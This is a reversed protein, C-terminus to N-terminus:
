LRILVIPWFAWISFEHELLNDNRTENEGRKEKGDGGRRILHEDGTLRRPRVQSQRFAGFLRLLFEVGALRRTRRLGLARFRVLSRGVDDAGLIGAISPLDPPRPPPRARTVVGVKADRERAVARLSAEHDGLPQEDVLKSTQTVEERLTDDGARLEIGQPVLDHTETSLVEGGLLLEFGLDALDVTPQGLDFLADGRELGLNTLDVISHGLELLSRGRPMCRKRHHGLDAQEDGHSGDRAREDSGFESKAHLVVRRLAWPVERHSAGDCVASRLPVTRAIDVLALEGHPAVEVLSAFDREFHTRGSVHERGVHGRIRGFTDCGIPAPMRDSTEDPEAPLEGSSESEAEFAAQAGALVVHYM